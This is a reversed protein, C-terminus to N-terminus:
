RESADHEPLRPTLPLGLIGRRLLDLGANAARRRVENREGLFQHRLLSVEGNPRALGFWVLGVPKEASGGTPGAIGTVGIAWDSGAARRAGLAMAEACQASVAGYRDLLAPSVGLRQIKAANAYPVFSEGFCESAGPADTLLSAIWGGTCSEAFSVSQGRERLLGVVVAPLTADDEGFINDAGLRGAVIARWEALTAARAAADSEKLTLRVDVTGLACLFALDVRPDGGFLDRMRENMRAEALGATRFTVAQMARGEWGLGEVVLDLGFLNFM